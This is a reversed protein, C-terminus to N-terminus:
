SSIGFLKRIKTVADKWGWTLGDWESQCQDGLGEYFETLDADDDIFEPKVFHKSANEESDFFKPLRDVLLLVLADTTKSAEDPKLGQKILLELISDRM